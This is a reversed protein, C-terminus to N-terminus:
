LTLLLLSSLFVLVNPCKKLKRMGPTAMAIRSLVVMTIANKAAVKSQGLKNGNEDILTVGDQLERMRMCPINM